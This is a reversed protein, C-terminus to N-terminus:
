KRVVNSQFAAYDLNQRPEVPLSESSRRVFTAAAVDGKEIPRNAQVAAAAKESSDAEPVRATVRRWSPVFYRNVTQVDTCKLAIYSASQCM